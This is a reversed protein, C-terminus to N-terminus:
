EDQFTQDYASPAWKKNEFSFDITNGTTFLPGTYTTIHNQELTVDTFHLKKKVTGDKTAIEVDVVFVGKEEPMLIFLSASVYKFDEGDVKKTADITWTRTYSKENEGIGWGTTPNFSSGCKGVISLKLDVVDVYPVDSSKIMFQAVSRLLACNVTNTSNSVDLEQCTYAMDTVYSDPFTALEPSTITVEGSAKSAVAVLTYKGVPLKVSLHGYGNDTGVQHFRYVKSDSKDKPFIAVDLRSFSKALAKGADDDARTGVKSMPEITSEFFALDVVYNEVPSQLTVDDNTCACMSTLALAMM